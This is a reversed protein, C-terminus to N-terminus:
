KSRRRLRGLAAIEAKGVRARARLTILLISAIVLFGGVLLRWGPRDGWVIVGIVVALVPTLQLYPMVVSVPHRQVLFFFLGHGVISALIASYCVAAWHEWRATRLIEAQGQEFLLTAAILIPLSIIATWAQFNMVTMGHIRRQYISGLAQFLASILTITLVDLQRLVMPDLGVILVGLFSVMVATLTIWGVREGILPLALIVAIPIFMQQIIAVSSVDDSRSLAWFMLTFHLGGICLCVLILVGWQGPPPLRVFPLLITLVLLFRLIMFLFPSFHQMGQAAATFNGAWVVCILLVLGLDRISLDYDSM